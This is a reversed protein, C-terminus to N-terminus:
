LAKKLDYKLCEALAEKPTTRPFKRQLKSIDSKNSSIWNSRVYKNM